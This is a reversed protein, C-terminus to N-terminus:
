AQRTPVGDLAAHFLQTQLHGIVLDLRQIHHELCPLSVHTILLTKRTAPSAFDLCHCIDTREGNVVRIRDDPREMQLQFLALAIAKDASWPLPCVHQSTIQKSPTRAHRTAFPNLFARHPKAM